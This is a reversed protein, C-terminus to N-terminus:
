AFVGYSAQLLIQEVQRTGSDTTLLELPTHDGLAKHSNALWRQIEEDDEFLNQALEVIRLLRSWRDWLNPKLIPNNKEYRFQTSESIGLIIRIQERDLQYKKALKLVSRYDQESQSIAQTM